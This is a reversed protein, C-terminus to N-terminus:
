EGNYRVIAIALRVAVAILVIATCAICVYDMAGYPPQFPDAANAFVVM